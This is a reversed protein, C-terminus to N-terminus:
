GSQGGHQFATQLRSEQNQLTSAAWFPAAQVSPLTQPPPEGPSAVHLLPVQETHRASWHWVVADHLACSSCHVWPVAFVFPVVQLSLLAKVTWSDQWAPIQVAPDVQWSAVDAVQALVRQWLPTHSAVLWLQENVLRQGNV